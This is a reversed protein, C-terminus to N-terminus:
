KIGATRLFVALTVALVNKAVSIDSPWCVTQTTLPLAGYLALGCFSSQPVLSRSASGDADAILGVEYTSPSLSSRQGHDYIV